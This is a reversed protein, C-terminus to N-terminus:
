LSTLLKPSSAIWASGQLHKRVCRSGIIQQHTKTNHLSYLCPMEKIFELATEPMEQLVEPHLPTDEGYNEPDGSLAMSYM